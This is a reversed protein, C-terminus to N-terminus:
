GSESCCAPGEDGFLCRTECVIGSIKTSIEWSVCALSVSWCSDRRKLLAPPWHWCGVMLQTGGGCDAAVARKLERGRATPRGAMM